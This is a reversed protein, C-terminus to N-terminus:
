RWLGTPLVLGFWSAFIFQIIAASGLAILAFYLPRRQPPPSLVFFQAFLYIAAAPLFGIVAMGGGFATLLVLSLLVTKQGEPAVPEMKLDPATRLGQLLIVAALIGLAASAIEPFFGSDVGFPFRSKIQSAAIFIVGAAVLLAAGALITNSREQM